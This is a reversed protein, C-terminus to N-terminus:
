FFTFSMWAWPLLHQWRRRRWLEWAMLGWGAWVALGLPLGQGWLVLNQLMYLVPARDTWQHSPPYDSEGSMLRAIGAMDEKWQPNLRLGLFGPGTFAQPQVIRFVLAALILVAVIPLSTRLFLLTFREAPSPPPCAADADVTLSVRLRGVRGSADVVRGGSAGDDGRRWLTLTRLAYALAIVGIFSLVSIKASVALGFALGLLLISGRGEGQAVRVAAYLALTVFFTTTTDVTFYHSQQISLVSLALFLAGLLGVRPGYLRRGIAFVLVICLLDMVASMARGALYVGDYGTRGTVQGLFKALVVPSLGYVYSGHQYNYPNLPNQATDWYQGLSTPWQLSNEVMTLFREDPHLHQGEDWNLGTFRLVAGLVVILALWELVLVRDSTTASVRRGLTALRQALERLTQRVGGWAPARAPEAEWRHPETPVRETM